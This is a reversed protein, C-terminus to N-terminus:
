CGERYITSHEDEIVELVKILLKRYGEDRKHSVTTKTLLLGSHPDIIRYIHKDGDM